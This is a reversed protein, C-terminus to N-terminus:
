ISDATHLTDQAYTESSHEIRDRYQKRIRIIGKALKWQISLPHHLAHYLLNKPQFVIREYLKLVQEYYEKITMHKPRIVVHALDWKPYDERRIVLEEDPVEIGTGKLPTLPQLNVFQIGMEVLKDGAKRFDDKSWDPSTIVAAYCDVHNEKLVKLAKENIERTTRKEFSDLEDDNFSEIGVIVTRLGVEHLEKILEAHEAIFDARGFVLYKKKINEQKVRSIFTLLRTPSLLFDDDVIYIEKERIGKLEAIVEEMPRAFYQDNTIKRCYCFRCTYPCGFSTKVLAVRNHFVYFYGRRYKMTLDRRPIPFYFDFPPLLKEDLKEGPALIELPRPANNKLHAILKPFARTANRVVRFDVAPDDIDEPFKEVHVGGTVTHVDPLISKAMRCFNRITDMHTIYGTVCFLDPRFDELIKELPKKELIMDAIMCTDDTGVLAALVELELPEVIMIHQLGITDPPPAPRVFLIRM